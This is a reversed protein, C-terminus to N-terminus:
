SFACVAQNKAANVVADVQGAKLADLATRGGLEAHAARLFRYITWPQDGLVEFM